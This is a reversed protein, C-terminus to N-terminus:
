KGSCFCCRSIFHLLSSHRDAPQRGAFYCVPSGNGGSVAAYRPLEASSAPNCRIADQARLCFLADSNNEFYLFLGLFLLIQKDSKVAVSAAVTARVM